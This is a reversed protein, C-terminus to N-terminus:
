SVPTSVSPDAQLQQKLWTTTSKAAGIVLFDIHEVRM